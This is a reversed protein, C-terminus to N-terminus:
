PDRSWYWQAAGLDIWEKMKGLDILHIGPGGPFTTTFLLSEGLLSEGAKLCNFGMCLFPGCLKFNKTARADDNSIKFLYKTVCFNLCRLLISVSISVKLRDIPDDLETVKHLLEVYDMYEAIRQLFSLPENFIVTFVVFLVNSKRFIFIACHCSWSM